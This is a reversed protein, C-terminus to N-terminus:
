PRPACSFESRALVRGDRDRAEVAWSGESGPGLDKYSQTRWRAGGLTLQIRRAEEGEHLWVHDISEGTAGGEIRTWFWVREGEAFQGAEGVLERDIVGRGVGHEPISLESPEATQDDEPGPELADTPPLSADTPSVDADGTAGPLDETVAAQGAPATDRAAVPRGSEPATSSGSLLLFAIVALVLIGSALVAIRRTRGSRPTDIVLPEDPWRPSENRGAAALWRHRERRYDAIVEEPDVGVLRAFSRLGEAVTADDPLAGFDDRQLAEIQWAGLGTAKAVQDLPLGSAVVAQRVKRGFTEM